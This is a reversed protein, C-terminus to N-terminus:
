RTYRFAPVHSPARVSIDAKRACLIRVPPWLVLITYYLYRLLPFNVRPCTVSPRAIEYEAPRTQSPLSLPTEPPGVLKPLVTEAEPGDIGFVTKRTRKRPVATRFKMNPRRNKNFFFFFIYINRNRCAGSLRRRAFVVSFRRESLSLFM